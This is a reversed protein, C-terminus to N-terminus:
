NKSPSASPDAYFETNNQLSGTDVLASTGKPQVPVACADDVNAWTFASPAAYALADLTSACKKFNGADKAKQAPDCYEKKTTAYEYNYSRDSNTTAVAAATCLNSITADDAYNLQVTTGQLYNYFKNAPVDYKLTVYTRTVTVGHEVKVSSCLEGVKTGPTTCDQKAPKVPQAVPAAVTDKATSVKVHGTLLGIGTFAVLAALLAGLLLAARNHRKISRQPQQPGNEITEM